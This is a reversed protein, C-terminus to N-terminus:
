GMDKPPLFYLKGSKKDAMYEGPLDIEELLNLAIWRTWPRGAAFGYMHPQVTTITHAKLDFNKM